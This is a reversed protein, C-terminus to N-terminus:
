APSRPDTAAIVTEVAFNVLVVIGVFLLICGQLVPIDRQALAQIALRGLGPLVFVNEVLVAGAVLYSVQLGALTLIAPLATDFVHRRMIAGDSLGKARATRVHDQSLAEQLAGRAVRALVAAQPVALAIAPLILYPLAGFGDQWGPFGGTPLPGSQFALILLIGIFFGPLAIGGQALLAVAAEAAPRRRAAAMALPLALLTAALMALGALPLTVSLRELLLRSVPVGYTASLGFDGRAADAMWHLYRLWLPQDLGLEARLAALTEPSASTGLMIAAQDGPLVSTMLFILSAVAVLSLLLTAGRRALASAPRGM